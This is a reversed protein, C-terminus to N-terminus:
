LLKLLNKLYIIVPLLTISTIFFRFFMTEYENMYNALVKVNVWSAGWGVMGLVLLLYFINKNTSTM